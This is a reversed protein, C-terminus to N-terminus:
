RRERRGACDACRLPLTQLRMLSSARPWRSSSASPSTCGVVTAGPRHPEPSPPLVPQGTMVMRACFRDCGGAPEAASVWCTTASANSLFRCLLCQCGLSHVGEVMFNLPSRLLVRVRPGLPLKDAVLHDSWRRCRREHVFRNGHNISDLLGLLHLGDRCFFRGTASAAGTAIASSVAVALTCTTLHRSGHHLGLWVCAGSAFTSPNRQIGM